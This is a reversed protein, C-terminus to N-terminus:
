SSGRRSSRDSKRYFQRRRLYALYSQVRSRTWRYVGLTLLFGIGVGAGTALASVSSSPPRTPGPGSPAPSPTIAATTGTVQIAPAQETELAPTETPLYNRVRVGEVITVLPTGSEPIVRLRLRYEGDTIQSTDWLGLPGERVPSDVPEGIAFWTDTPDEQYAFALDYGAFNPHDATGVITILGTVVQQDAPDIIEALGPVQAAVLLLLLTLAIPPWLTRFTVPM